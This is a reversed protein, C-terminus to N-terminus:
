VELSVLSDVCSFFREITRPFATIPCESARVFESSVIASVRPLLRKLTPHATLSERAGVVQPEVQEFM